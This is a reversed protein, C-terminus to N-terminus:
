ARQRQPLRKGHGRPESEAVKDPQGQVAEVKKDVRKQAGELAKDLKERARQQPRDPGAITKRGDHTALAGHDLMRKCSNDQRENRERSVRPWATPEWTAKVQPTGWDVLTKGEAPAVIGCHRPADPRPVQWAGSSVKTGDALTGVATAAFSELGAHENDDRMCLVGWGQDDFACALAVANVARDMVLLASGTAQAVKHCSEVIVPFLHLDPPYSAVFLAQGAENPAIIAQSGAMLRGLLTSTGKPM